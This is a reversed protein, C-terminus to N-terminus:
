RTDVPRFPVLPEYGSTAPFYGNVDAILHTSASTYLCVKGGTGIKAVVANAVTQGSVYNLNSANPRTVGCPYVTVFGNGLPGTVTVNLMVAGADSPVGARGAVTLQVVKADGTLGSKWFLGDVTSPATPRTELVRGPTAPTYEDGTPFYGSLDAILDVASNVYLCVKGGSGVKAVVLNPVARGATFNVNSTEPRTAGCPYVSVYGGATSRVATVNLVVGGADIPVGARGTVTLELVSDKTRTGTRAFLGDDTRGVDSRTDMVRAPVLPTFASGAPFYGGVDVILHAAQNTFVCVRGGAGVKSMVSNPVAQGAVYNVNSANPLDDGCPFVSVFGSAAPTTVTVNLVVAEADAPVDERGTVKLELTSGAARKGRWLSGTPNQVAVARETAAAPVVDGAGGSTKMSTLVVSDTSAGVVVVNGYEDADMARIETASSMARVSILRLTGLADDRSYVAVVPWQSSAGEPALSPECYGSVVLREGNLLTKMTQTPRAASKPYIGYCPSEYGPFPVIAVPTAPAPLTLSTSGLLSGDATSFSRISGGFWESESSLRSVVWIASDSVSVMEPLRLPMPLMSLHQITAIKNGDPSLHTLSLYDTGFLGVKPKGGVIWFSGDAAEVPTPCQPAYGVPPRVVGVTDGLDYSWELSLNASYRFVETLGMAVFGGSSSTALLDVCSTAYSAGALTAAVAGESGNDAIRLIEGTPSMTFVNGLGDIFVQLGTLSATEPTYPDGLPLVWDSQGDAGIKEIFYQAMESPAVQGRYSGYFSGTVYTSGDPSLVVDGYGSYNGPAPDGYVYDWNARASDPVLVGTSVALVMVLSSLARTNLRTRM